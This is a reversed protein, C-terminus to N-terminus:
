IGAKNIVRYLVQQYTNAAGKIADQTETFSKNEVPNELYQSLVDIHM